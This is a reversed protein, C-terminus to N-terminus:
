RLVVSVFTLATVFALFGGAVREIWTIALEVARNM